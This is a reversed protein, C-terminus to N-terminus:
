EVVAAAAVAIAVAPVWGASLLFLGTVLSTRRESSSPVAAGAAPLVRRIATLWLARRMQISSYLDKSSSTAAQLPTQQTFVGVAAGLTFRRRRLTTRWGASAVALRLAERAM